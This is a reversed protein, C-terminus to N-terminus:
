TGVIAPRAGDLVHGETRPGTRFATKFIAHRAVGKWFAAREAITWIWTYDLCRPGVVNLQFVRLNLAACCHANTPDSNGLM